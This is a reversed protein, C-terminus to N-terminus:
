QAEKAKALIWQMRNRAVQEIDGTTDWPVSEKLSAIEITMPMTKPNYRVALMFSRCRSATDVTIVSSPDLLQSTWATPDPVHQVVYSAVEDGTGHALTIATQVSKSAAFAGGTMAAILSLSGTRWFFMGVNRWNLMVTRNILAKAVAPDLTAIGQKAAAQYVVGASVSSENESCVIASMAGVGAIRKGTLAKLASAGQPAFSVTQSSLSVALSLALLLRIM